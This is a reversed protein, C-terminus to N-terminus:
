PAIEAYRPMDRCIEAVQPRLSKLARRGRWMEASRPRDRYMEISRPMDRCLDRCIEACFAYWDSEPVADFKRRSSASIMEDIWPWAPALDFFEGLDVFFEGLDVFFEGLDDRRDVAM